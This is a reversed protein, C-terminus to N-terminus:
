AASDGIMEEFTILSIPFQVDLENVSEHGTKKELYARCFEGCRMGQCDGMSVRTAMKLNKIDHIGREIASDIEGLTVNECACVLTDHRGDSLYNTRNKSIEKFVKRVAKYKTCEANLTEALKYAEADVVLGLEKLIGLAALKGELAAVKAGNIGAVDGAAYVNEISSKRWRDVKPSRGESESRVMEMGLLDAVRSRSVFGFGVGLGSVAITRSKRLNPKGDSGIPALVVEELSGNGQAKVLGWGYRVEIKAKKLFRLYDFGDRFISFNKFIAPLQKAFARKTGCEFIGVVRVGALHLQKAAVPLLPGTGVLVVPGEPKVLNNKVQSQMGGLTAVGPLTWGPFPLTREYCGTSIILYQYRVAFLGEEDNHAMLYKRRDLVGVVRTDSLITVRSAHRRHLDSLTKMENKLAVDLHGATVYERAPGRYVAGGPKSAEDVVLSSLGFESLYAAANIGAPGAGVICVDVRRERPLCSGM